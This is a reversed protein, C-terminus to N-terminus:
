NARRGLHELPLCLYSVNRGGLVPFPGLCLTFLGVPRGPEAAPFPWPLDSELWVPRGPLRPDSVRVLLATVATKGRLLLFESGRASKWIVHAYKDVDPHFCVHTKGALVLVLSPPELTQKDPAALPRAPLVTAQVCPSRPEEETQWAAEM